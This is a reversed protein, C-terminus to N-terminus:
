TAGLVLLNTRDGYAVAITNTKAMRDAWIAVDQSRCSTGESFVPASTAEGGGGRVKMKIGPSVLVSM